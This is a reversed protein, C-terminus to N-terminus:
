HQYKDKSFVEEMDIDGGVVKCLDICISDDQINGNFGGDDFIGYGFIQKLRDLFDTLWMYNVWVLFEKDNVWGFESVYSIDEDDEDPCNLLKYVELEMSMIMMKREHKKCDLIFRTM